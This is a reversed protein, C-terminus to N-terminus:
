RMKLELAHINTHKMGVKNNELNFINHRFYIIKKM